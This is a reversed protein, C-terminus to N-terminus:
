GMASGSSNTSSMGGSAAPAAPASPAQQVKQANQAAQRKEDDTMPALALENVNARDKVNKGDISTLEVTGGNIASVLFPVAVGNVTKVVKQGVQFSETTVPKERIKKFDIVMGTGECTGCNDRQEGPKCSCKAGTKPQYEKKARHQIDRERSTQPIGGGGQEESIAEDRQDCEGMPDKTNAMKHAYYEHMHLTFPSKFSKSCKACKFKKGEALVAELKGIRFEPKITELVGMRNQRLLGANIAERILAAPFGREMLGGETFTGNLKAIDILTMNM